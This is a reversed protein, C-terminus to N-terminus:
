QLGRFFLVTCIIASILWIIGGKLNNIKSVNNRGFLIRILTDNEPSTWTKQNGNKSLSIFCSLSSYYSILGVLLYVIM